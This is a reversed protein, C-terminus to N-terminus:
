PFEFYQAMGLSDLFTSPKIISEARNLALKLQHCPGIMAPTRIIPAGPLVISEHLEAYPYLALRSEFVAERISYVSKINYEQSSLLSRSQLLVKDVAKTGSIIYIGQSLPQQALSWPHCSWIALGSLSDIGPCTKGARLLSNQRRGDRCLAFYRSYREPIVGLIMRLKGRSCNTASQTWFYNGRVITTTGM